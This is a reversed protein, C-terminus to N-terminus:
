YSMERSINSDAESYFIIQMRSFFNKLKLWISACQRKQPCIDDGAELRIWGREGRQAHCARGRAGKHRGCVVVM